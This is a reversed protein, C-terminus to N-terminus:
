CLALLPSVILEANTILVWVTGLVMMFGALFFIEIGGYFRPLGLHALADFPLAWHGVLALGAVAAFIKNRILPLKSARAFAHLRGYVFRLIQELGAKLLLGGGLVILSLGLSFYAIQTNALGMQMLWYGALLPLFGLLILSRILGVLADPIQELVIHRIRHKGLKGLLALLRLCLEGLSESNKGPEPLDRMAEVVTMRSVLWSSAAVSIFTFIVGLCYAIVLSHLQFTLKLPFNF